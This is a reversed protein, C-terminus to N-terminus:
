LLLNLLWSPIAMLSMKLLQDKNAGFVSKSNGNKDTASFDKHILYGHAMRNEISDKVEKFLESSGQCFLAMETNYHNSRNDVNFTGIMFENLSPDHYEYLQTKSHTGWQAKKVGESLTETEHIYEGSHIYTKIGLSAWNFVTRYLNAAVYLADTSAMSNTYLTVDLNNELLHIYLDQSKPHNIMYPSSVVIGKTAKVGKDFLTKRLFRYDDSYEEMLRTTFNGGPRDTSFTTIPCEYMKKKSLIKRGLKQARKALDLEEPTLILFDQAKKVKSHYEELAKTNPVMKRKRIISGRERYVKMKFESPKEPVEPVEVIENEFFKDFSERMTKVIDGQVYVDRDVFNYTESFDFYDDEINRGGTIAYLDDVSLLKRHNRFNISSVRIMAAANYYRVEVGVDSLAKAYFEDLEFITSSKDVLIRVKVGRRAAKILEQTFIKSSSDLGYIFYEVEINRKAKRIIELRKELSAIGSNLIMMDNRKGESSTQVDYFPHPIMSSYEVALASAGGHVIGFLLHLAVARKVLRKM